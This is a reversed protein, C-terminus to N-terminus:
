IYGREKSNEQKSQRTTNSHLRDPLRVTLSLLSFEFFFFFFCHPDRAGIQM